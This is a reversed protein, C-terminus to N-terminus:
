KGAHAKLAVVQLTRLGGAAYQSSAHALQRLTERDNRFQQLSEPTLPVDQM